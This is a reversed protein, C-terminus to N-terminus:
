GGNWESQPITRESVTGTTESRIQVSLETDKLVFRMGNWQNVYGWGRENGMKGSDGLAVTLLVLTGTGPLYHHYRSTQRVSM